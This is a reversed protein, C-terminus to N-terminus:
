RHRATNRGLVWAGDGRSARAERVKRSIRRRLVSTGTQPMPLREVHLNCELAGALQRKPQQIHSHPTVRLVSKDAGLEPKGSLSYPAFVSGEGATFNAMQLSIKRPQFGSSM